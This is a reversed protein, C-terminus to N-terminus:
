SVEAALSPEAIWAGLLLLMFGFTWCMEHFSIAGDDRKDEIRLPTGAAAYGGACGFGAHAGGPPWSVRRKLARKPPDAMENLRAGLSRSQTAARM